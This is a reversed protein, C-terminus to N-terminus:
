RSCSEKRARSDNEERNAEEELIAAIQAKKRTSEKEAKGAATNAMKRKLEKLCKSYKRTPLM